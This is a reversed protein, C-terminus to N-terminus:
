ASNFSRVKYKTGHQPPAITLLPLSHELLRPTDATRLAPQRLSCRFRGHSAASAAPEALFLSPSLGTNAGHLNQAHMHHQIHCCFPRRAHSLFVRMCAHSALYFHTKYTHMCYHRFCRLHVATQGYRLGRPPTMKYFLRHVALLPPTLKYFQFFNNTARNNKM